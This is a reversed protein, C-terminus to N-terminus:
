RTVGDGVFGGDRGNAGLWVAEALEKGNANAGSLGNRSKPDERFFKAAPEADNQLLRRFDRLPIVQMGSRALHRRSRRSGDVSLPNRRRPGGRLLRRRRPAWHGLGGLRDEKEINPGSMESLFGEGM